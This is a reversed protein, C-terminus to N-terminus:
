QALVASSSVLLLRLLVVDERSELLKRSAPDAITTM